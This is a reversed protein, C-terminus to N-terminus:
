QKKREDKVLERVKFMRAYIERIINEAYLLEPVDAVTFVLWRYRYVVTYSRGSYWWFGQGPGFVAAFDRTEHIENLSSLRENYTRKAEDASQMKEIYLTTDMRDSRYRAGYADEITMPGIDRKKVYFISERYMSGEPVLEKHYSLLYKPSDRFFKVRKIINEGHLKLLTSYFHENEPSYFWFVVNNKYGATFPKRYSMEGRFYPWRERPMPVLGSYIGYAEDATKMEAVGLYFKMGRYDYYGCSLEEPTFEALLGKLVPNKSFEALAEDRGSIKKELRAQAKNEAGIIDTIFDDPSPACTMFQLCLIIAPVLLYKKM